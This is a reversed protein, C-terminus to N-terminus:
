LCSTWTTAYKRNLGWRLFVPLGTNSFTLSVEHRRYSVRDGVDCASLYSCTFFLIGVVWLYYLFYSCLKMPSKTLLPSLLFISCGERFIRAAWFHISRVNGILFSNRWLAFRRLRWNAAGREFHDSLEVGLIRHLRFGLNEIGPLSGIITWDIM